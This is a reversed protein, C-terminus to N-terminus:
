EKIYLIFLLNGIEMFLLLRKKFAAVLNQLYNKVYLVRTLLATIEVNVYAIGDAYIAM